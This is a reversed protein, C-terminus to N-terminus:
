DRRGVSGRQGGVVVGQGELQVHRAEVPSLQGLGAPEQMRPGVVLGPFLSPLLREVADV